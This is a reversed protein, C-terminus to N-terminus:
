LNSRRLVVIESGSRVVVVRTRTAGTDASWTDPSRPYPAGPDETPFVESCRPSPQFFPFAGQGARARAMRLEQGASLYIFIAIVVLIPSYFLGLIGMAVATFRGVRVATETARLHGMRMSLISRLVRGGDMPFAPLLNFVAMAVNVYLLNLVVWGSGALAYLLFLAAAIAINVAPGALTVLLEHAPREPMRELNAVGGIPLLTIDRTQIGFRRATLAHGLEHLVVCGFVAAIFFLNVFAAAASAGALADSLLLWLVLLAFSWHLYIGIGKITGIKWSGRM